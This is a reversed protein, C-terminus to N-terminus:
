EGGKVADLKVYARTFATVMESKTLADYFDSASCQFQEVAKVTTVDLKLGVNVNSKKSESESKKNM